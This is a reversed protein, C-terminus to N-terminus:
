TTPHSLAPRAPPPSPPCALPPPAPRRPDEESREAAATAAARRWGARTAAQSRGDYSGISWAGTAADHEFNVHCFTHIGDIFGFSENKLQAITADAERGNAWAFVQKKAATQGIGLGLLGLILQLWGKM